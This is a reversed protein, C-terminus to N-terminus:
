EIVEDARALLAPPLILGLVKATKLNIVLQFKTPQQVPLDSPKAGKLIKDVYDAASRHLDRDDLDDYAMLGGNEAFAAYPYVAPLSYRAALETVQARANRFISEATTLVGQAGIKSGAEFAAPLDDPTKIDIVHLTVGLSSAAEKMAQVQLPSIPDVLYALVLVRSLEPVAEKLLELRKAALGSTMQSMGTINGGPRGLSDVLKTGVPDGVVMVIPITTTADKLAHAGPTTTVAIIDPKLHLCEDALERYRDSRGEPHLYDITITEGNVYGLERLREFFGEFRKAPSQPTGPDFTLFSLRPVRKLSQAASSLPWGLAGGAVAIFTRRRM